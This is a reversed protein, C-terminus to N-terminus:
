EHTRVTIRDFANVFLQITPDIHQSRMLSQGAFKSSSTGFRSQTVITRMSISMGGSSPM